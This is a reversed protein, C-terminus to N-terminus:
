NMLSRYIEACRQLQEVAVWEDVAHAQAIDGPGLVFTPRGAEAFLAAETWFDVDDAVPLSLERCKAISSERLKPDCPLPPGDFSTKWEVSKPLNDVLERVLLQNAFGGPMRASWTVTCLDAVINNKIGGDM